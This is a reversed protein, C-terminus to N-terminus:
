RSVSPPSPRGRRAAVVLILSGIAGAVVSAVLVGVKAERQLRESGYALGTVFLSVTFGIGGLAAAGMMQPWTVGDPLRALGSRTAAWVGLGIGAVKGVVLGLVVGMAVRSGLAAGAGALPIGASALAFVPVVLYSTWPHLAHELRAAPSVGEDIADAEARPPRAPMLLGMVVGAITAHVGSEFVCLWLGVGLAGYVALHMGRVRRLAVVALVVGGAALLWGVSLDGAYFVAIVAIAGIDDVIALTLLFLKLPPPVRRGLVAVVGLAFAIDTAMPIGWGRGGAGGRNVVVFLLAPVVMGGVAAVAPLAAARRDRLEGAVLERKIELSVVFFFLAMLGDAIWHRLDEVLRLSGVGLAIRTHFLADYGGKWPSNAWALAVVTAGVLLVSGAAEANQRLLGAGAAPNRRRKPDPSSM